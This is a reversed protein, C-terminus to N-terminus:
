IIDELHGKHSSSQCSVCGAGVPATSKPAQSKDALTAQLLKTVSRIRDM